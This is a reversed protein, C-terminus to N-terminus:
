QKLKNQERKLLQEKLFEQKKIRWLILGLDGLALLGLCGQIPIEFEKGEITKLETM